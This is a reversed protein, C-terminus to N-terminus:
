DDYPFELLVEVGGDSPTTIKFTSRQPYLLQVREKISYLGFGSGSAEAGIGIGNDKVMIKVKDREKAVTISVKGGEPKPGIGHIVANEVLPEILLPPIKLFNLEPPTNIEYELRKGMRIKEIELYETVLGIEKKLRIKKDEPFELVQRYIGSLNLIMQEVKEPEKYVLDAMASLTNFLFHPNIKSQLASLKTQIQLHKTEENKIIQQKLKKKVRINTYAYIALTLTMLLNASLLIPKNSSKAMPFYSGLISSDLLVALETGIITGFVIALFWLIFHSSKGSTDPNFFLRYFVAGLFKICFALTNAFIFSAPLVEQIEGVNGYLLLVITGVIALVQTIVIIEGLGDTFYRFLSPQPMLKTKLSTSNSM